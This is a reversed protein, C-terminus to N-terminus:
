VKRLLGLITFEVNETQKNAQGNVNRYEQAKNTASWIKEVAITKRGGCHSGGNACSGGSEIINAV